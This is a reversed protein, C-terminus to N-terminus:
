KLTISPACQGYDVGPHAHNVNNFGCYQALKPKPPALLDEVDPVHVHGISVGM